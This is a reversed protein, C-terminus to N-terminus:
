AARQALALFGEPDRALREAPLVIRVYGPDGQSEYMDFATDPMDGLNPEDPTLLLGYENRRRSLLGTWKQFLEFTKPTVPKPNGQGDIVVKAMRARMEGM